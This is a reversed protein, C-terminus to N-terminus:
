PTALKQEILYILMKARADAETHQFSRIEYLKGQLSFSPIVWLNGDKVIKSIADTPLMEGLEAVSFASHVAWRPNIFPQRAQHWVKWPGRLHPLYNEGLDDIYHDKSLLVEAIQENPLLRKVWYFESMQEVALEKLRKALELSVVQNELKM